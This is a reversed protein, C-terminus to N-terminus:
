DTIVGKSRLYDEELSLIAKIEEINIDLEIHKAIYDILNETDIIIEDAM